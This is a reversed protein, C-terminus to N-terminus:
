SEERCQKKQGEQSIKFCLLKKSKQGNESKPKFLIRAGRDPRRLEAPTGRTAALTFLNFSSAMSGNLMAPQSIECWLRDGINHTQSFHMYAYIWWSEDDHDDDDGGDDCDADDNDENHHLQLHQM